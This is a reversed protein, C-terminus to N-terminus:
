SDGLTAKVTQMFDDLNIPKAIYGDFGSALIKEEDGKMAFSTVALIKIDRTAPDQRLISTAAIGDMGPLQIDMLILDPIERRAAAIGEEADMASIAQHGAKQVLLVALKMNAPHDEVVLVKAM